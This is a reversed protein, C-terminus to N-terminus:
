SAWLRVNVKNNKKQTNGVLLAVSEADDVSRTDNSVLESSCTEGNVETSRDVRTGSRRRVSIFVVVQISHTVSTGSFSFWASSLSSCLFM